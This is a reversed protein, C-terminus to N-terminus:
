NGNHTRIGNLYDIAKKLREPNDKMLGLAMNCQGCLLGRVINTNHCHDIHWTSPTQKCIDCVFGQAEKMCEVQEPTVGYRNKLRNRHATEIRTTKRYREEAIKGAQTKKYAARRARYKANRVKAREKVEPRAFYEKNYAAIQQKTKPM